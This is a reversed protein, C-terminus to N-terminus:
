LERHRSGRRCEVRNWSPATTEKYPCTKRFREKKQRFAFIGLGYSIASRRGQGRLGDGPFFSISFMRYAIFFLRGYSKSFHTDLVTAFHSLVSRSRPRGFFPYKSVYLQM